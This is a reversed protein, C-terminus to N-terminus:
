GVPIAGTPISRMRTSYESGPKQPGPRNIIEKAEGIGSSQEIRALDLATYERKDKNSVIWVPVVLSNDFHWEKKSSGIIPQSLASGTLFVFQGIGILFTALLLRAFLRTFTIHKNLISM